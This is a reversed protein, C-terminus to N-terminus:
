LDYPRVTGRKNAKARACAAKLMEVMKANVADPLSGDSRLNNSRIIEKVRSAVAVAKVQTAMANEREALSAKEKAWAV